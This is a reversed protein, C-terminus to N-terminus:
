KIKKAGPKKNKLSDYVAFDGEFVKRKKCKPHDQTLHRSLDGIKSFAEDCKSCAFPLITEMKLVISHHSHHDELEEKTGFRKLCVICLIMGHALEYHDSLHCLEKFWGNCLDCSLVVEFKKHNMKCHNSLYLPSDFTTDCVECKVFHVKRHELLDTKSKCVLNCKPCVESTKTYSMTQTCQYQIIGANVHVSEFHSKLCYICGVVLSCQKCRYMNLENNDTSKCVVMLYSALNTNHKSTEMDEEEAEEKPLVVNNIDCPDDEYKAEVCMAVVSNLDENLNEPKLFESGRYYEKNIDCDDTEETVQLIINESNNDDIEGDYQLYIIEADQEYTITADEIKLDMM